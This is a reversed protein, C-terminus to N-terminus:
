SEKQRVKYARTLASRGNIRIMRGALVTAVHWGIGIAAFKLEVAVCLPAYWKLQEDLLMSEVHGGDASKATVNNRTKL